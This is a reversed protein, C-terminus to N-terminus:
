LKQQDKLVGYYITQKTQDDKTCTILTIMQKYDEKLYLIGTKEQYEIEVIAYVWLYGNYYLNVEDGIDLKYLQAFYANRGWGSHAALILHSEEEDPFVSMNHVFINKDVQNNTSSIPYLQKKLNIKTIELIAFYEETTMLEELIIQEQYLKTKYIVFSSLPVLIALGILILGIVKIKRIM